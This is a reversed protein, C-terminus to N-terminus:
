QNGGEVQPKNAQDARRVAEEFRKRVVAREFYATTQEPTMGETEKAVTEKWKRSVAVADFTKTRAKM